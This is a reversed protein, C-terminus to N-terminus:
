RAQVLHEIQRPLVERRAYDQWEAATKAVPKDLWERWRGADPVRLLHRAGEVVPRWGYLEVLERLDSGPTTQATLLKQLGAALAEAELNVSLVEELVDFRPDLGAEVAYQRLLAA